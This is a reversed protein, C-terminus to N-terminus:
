IPRRLSGGGKEKARGGAGGLGQRPRAAPNFVMTAPRIRRDSSRLRIHAKWVHGARVM